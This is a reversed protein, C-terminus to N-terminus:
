VGLAKASRNSACGASILRKRFPLSSGSRVASSPAAKRSAPMGVQSIENAVLRLVLRHNCTRRVYHSCTRLSRSYEPGTMRLYDSCFDRINALLVSSSQLRSCTPTPQGDSGSRPQVGVYLNQGAPNDKADVDRPRLTVPRDGSVSQNKTYRNGYTFEPVDGLARTLRLPVVAAICGGNRDLRAAQVM